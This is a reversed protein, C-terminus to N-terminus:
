AESKAPEAAAGEKTEHIFQKRGQLYYVLGLLSILTTLLRWGLLAEAGSRIHVMRFLKGFAAEGIGLGGPTLPITNVLFGIPVLLITSFPPMVGGTAAALLMCAWATILNGFLSILVAIALPGPHRGFAHLTDFMREAYSGLPFNRFIWVLLRSNRVRTSLCLCFGFVMGAVLLAAFWLIRRLGPSSQVLDPFFPAFVLSFLLMSFMGIARDLLVITALEARRGKKGHSAYYIKMVDGSTGGPLFTSFFQGILALKMSAGYSLKMGLPAMLIVLRVAVTYFCLFLLVLALLTLHWTKALGELSKWNIAGSTGLYVLLAIGFGARLVGLTITRLRSV